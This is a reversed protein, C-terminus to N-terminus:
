CGEYCGLFCGCPNPWTPCQRDVCFGAMVFPCCWCFIAPGFAGRLATRRLEREMVQNVRAFGPGDEIFADVKAKDEARLATAAAVDISSKPIKGGFEADLGM